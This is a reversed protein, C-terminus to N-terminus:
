QTIILFNNIRAGAGCRGALGWMGSLELTELNSERGEVYMAHYKQRIGIKAVM